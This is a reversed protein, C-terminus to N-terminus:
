CILAWNGAGALRLMCRGQLRGKMSAEGDKNSPTHNHRSSRTSTHTNTKEGELADGSWDGKLVSSRHALTGSRLAYCPWIDTTM